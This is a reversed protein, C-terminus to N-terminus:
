VSGGGSSETMTVNQVKLLTGMVEVNGAIM